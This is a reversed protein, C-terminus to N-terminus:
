PRERGILELGVLYEGKAIKALKIALEARDVIVVAERWNDMFDDEKAGVSVKWMARKMTEGVIQVSGVGVM